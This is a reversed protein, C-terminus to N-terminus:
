PVTATFDIQFAYTDPEDVRSVKRSQGHVFEVLVGTEEYLRGLEDVFLQELARLRDSM